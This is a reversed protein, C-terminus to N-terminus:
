KQKKANFYNIGKQYRDADWNNPVFRPDAQEEPSGLAARSIIYEQHIKRLAEPVVVPETTRKKTAPATTTEPAPTREAPAKVVPADHEGKFVAIGIGIYSAIKTIADTTAGKAADGMDDNTSSAICEYYIGYAPVELITKALATYETREKGYNTTRTISSIPALLETRITWEGIGFVDNFRETVFIAKITSMGARTPHPKVAQPPLPKAILALQESSLNTKM